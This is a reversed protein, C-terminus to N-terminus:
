TSIDVVELHKSLRPLTGVTELIGVQEKILTSINAEISRAKETAISEQNETAMNVASAASIIIASPPRQGCIVIPALHSIKPSNKDLIIFRFWVLSKSKCSAKM